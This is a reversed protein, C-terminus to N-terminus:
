LSNLFSRAIQDNTDDEYLPIELMGKRVGLDNYSFIQTWFTTWSILEESSQNTVFVYHDVKYKKSSLLPNTFEPFNKLIRNAKEKSTVQILSLVLICDPEKRGEQAATDEVFTGGIWQDGKIGNAICDQRFDLFGKLVEIRERSTSFHQCFELIDCKYPSHNHRNYPAGVYAPLVNNHDFPPIM